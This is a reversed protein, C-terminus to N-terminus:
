KAEELIEKVKALFIDMQERSGVTIRNYERIRAKEFHRILVGRKKLELYLEKGGIADSKVFIFNTFVCNDRM